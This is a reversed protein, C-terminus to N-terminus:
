MKGRGRGMVELGNEVDADKNRDQEKIGGGTLSFNAGESQSQAKHRLQAPPATQTNVSAAQGVAPWNKRMGSDQSQYEIGM